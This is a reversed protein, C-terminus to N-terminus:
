WNLKAIFFYKLSTFNSKIIYTKINNKRETPSVIFVSHKNFVFENMLDTYINSDNLNNFDLITLFLINMVIGWDLFKTIESISNIIHHPLDTIDDFTAHINSYVGNNNKLLISKMGLFNPAIFDKKINDGIYIMEDYDVDFFEKMSEFALPNPKWYERGFEDTYIIKDIFDILNLAEIKNKQTEIYGDTIIGTKIGKDRLSKLITITTEDLTIDPKHKRYVDILYSKMESSLSKHYKEFLRDFIQTKEKHYLNLIDEYIKMKDILLINELYSVIETFASFAYKSESILTDDLDFVVVKIM